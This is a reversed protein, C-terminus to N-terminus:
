PMKDLEKRCIANILTTKGTGNRGIMGYKRGKTLKVTAEEILLSNGAIITVQPIFIDAQFLESKDHMVRPPPIKEKTALLKDIAADADAAEKAKKAAFQGAKKDIWNDRSGDANGYAESSGKAEEYQHGPTDEELERLESGRQPTSAQSSAKKKADAVLAEKELAKFLKTLIKKLNKNFDAGGVIYEQLLHHIAGVSVIEENMVIKAMIKYDSDNNAKVTKRLIAEAKQIPTNDEM